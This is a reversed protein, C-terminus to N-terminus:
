KTTLKEPSIKYWKTNHLEKITVKHDARIEEKLISKVLKINETEVFMKMNDNKYIRYLM